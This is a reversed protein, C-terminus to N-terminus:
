ASVAIKVPRRIWEQNQIAASTEAASARIFKGYGIMESMAKEPAMGEEHILRSGYGRIAVVKLPNCLVQRNIM